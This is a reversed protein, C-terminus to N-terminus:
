FYDLSKCTELKIKNKSIGTIESLNRPQSLLQLGKQHFLQHYNIQRCGTHRGASDRIPSLAAGAVDPPCKLVERVEGVLFISNKRGPFPCLCCFAVPLLISARLVECVDNAHQPCHHPAPSSLLGHVQSIAM